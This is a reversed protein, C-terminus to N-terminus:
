QGLFPLVTATFVDFAEAHPVHGLGPLIVLQCHPIKAQTQKSLAPYDGMTRAISDSVLNKGIATRDLGGVILLTPPRIHGFEYFVPQTFIMDYALASNWAVRAYEPGLTWGAQINVMRDYKPSWVGHFYSNLQYKKIAAYDQKLESQYWGDVGPDPVKLKWDELGIPDELILKEVRDPFMLTFRTAVMGGMSHGLVIVKDVGASDLVARTNRALLQFSYQLHDPKSSKGFGIQDPIVVRYGKGALFRATEGWYDGSFNKGHLLLITHGNPQTPVVDMYAMKLVQQQVPLTIYKVPYPYTVGELSPGLAVLTDARGTQQAYITPASLILISFFANIFAARIM